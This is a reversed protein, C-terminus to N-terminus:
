AVQSLRQRRRECEQSNFIRMLLSPDNLLKKRYGFFLGRRPLRSEAAELVATAQERTIRGEGRLSGVDRGLREAIAQQEGPSRDTISLHRKLLIENLIEDAPCPQKEGTQREM